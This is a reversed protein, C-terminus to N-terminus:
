ASKQHSYVALVTKESICLYEDMATAAQELQNSQIMMFLQANQEIYPAHLQQPNNMYSFVLRLEAAMTQYWKNLRESNALSVIAAHFEINATGVSRWDNKQSSHRAHKVAEQMQILAPHMPYTNRIADVEILRRIRYIDIIATIDPLAVCVGRNPQHDLIGEQTLLRFSERLTNRSVNLQHSLAAESLRESPNLVGQIIMQRITDAIKQSLSRLSSDSNMVVIVILSYFLNIM